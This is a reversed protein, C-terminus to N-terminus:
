IWVNACWSGTWSFMVAYPSRDEKEVEGKVSDIEKAHEERMDAIVDQLRIVRAKLTACQDPHGPTDTCELWLQGKLRQERELQKAEAQQMAAVDARLEQVEAEYTEKVKGLEALHEDRLAERIQSRLALVMVERAEDESGEKHDSDHVSVVARGSDCPCDNSPDENESRAVSSMFLHFLLSRRSRATFMDQVGSRRSVYRFPM